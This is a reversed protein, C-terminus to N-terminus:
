GVKFEKPVKIQLNIDETRLFEQSNSRKINDWEMIKM